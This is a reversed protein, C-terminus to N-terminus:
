KAGYNEQRPLFRAHWKYHEFLKALDGIETIGSNGPPM